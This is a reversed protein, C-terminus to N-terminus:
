GFTVQGRPIDILLSIFFVRSRAYVFLPDRAVANPAKSQKGGLSTKESSRHYMATNENAEISSTMPVLHPNLETWQLRVGFYGAFM